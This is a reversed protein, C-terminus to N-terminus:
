CPEIPILCSHEEEIPLRITFVTGQGVKSSVDISGHHNKIINYSVHLGLGTGKGVEKTTFFPNFIRNLDEEPIGQGTDSIEITIHTEDARTRISIEGQCAMAQAANVLINMFVQSLRNVYANILPIEGYEKHVKAKYKIESWVVNLTSDLCRNIDVSQKEEKGPHAFDKLDIVIKEVRVSGELCERILEPADKLLYDKDISREHLRIAEIESFIEAPPAKLRDILGGYMRILGAFDKVYDSLTLLNSKIFGIPNNIEHAVGAAIQGISAMKESQFLQSMSKFYRNELDIIREATRLRAKVEDYDVPKILYDDAGAQLGEVLDSKRDKASILMIFIYGDGKRERINRCLSLGDMHPMAWDTIVVNFPKQQLLDWAQAGDNVITVQYGEKKMFIQLKTSSVLDDEVILIEMM